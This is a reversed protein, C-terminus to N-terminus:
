HHRVRRLTAGRWRWRRVQCVQHLPVRAPDRLVILAGPGLCSGRDGNSARDEGDDILLSALGVSELPITVEVPGLFVARPDLLCNCVVSPYKARSVALKSGDFPRWRCLVAAEGDGVSRSGNTIPKAEQQWQGGGLRIALDFVARHYPGPRLEPGWQEAGTCRAM